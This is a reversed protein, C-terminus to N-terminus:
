TTEVREIIDDITFFSQNVWQTIENGSKDVQVMSYQIPINYKDSLDQGVSSDHDVKHIRVGEPIAGAELNREVSNCVTCWAAHFFLIDTEADSSALAAPDYDVLEGGPEFDNQVLSDTPESETQSASSISNSSQISSDDDGSLALFGVGGLVILVVAAIIGNKM